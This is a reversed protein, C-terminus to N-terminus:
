GAALARLAPSEPRLRGAALAFRLTDRVMEDFPRIAYGLEREAKASSAWSYLRAARVLERNTSPRVGRVRAAAETLAAGALAVPYPIRRPPPVGAVAAVRVAM